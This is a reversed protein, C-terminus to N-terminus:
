ALSRRTRSPAAESARFGHDLIWSLVGASKLVM